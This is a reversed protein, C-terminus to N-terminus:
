RGSSTPPETGLPASGGEARRCPPKLAARAKTMTAREEAPVAVGFVADALDSTLETCPREEDWPLLVVVHRVGLAALQPLVGAGREVHGRGMIGVVLADGHTRHASALAEAMARDWTLQAEIFRAFKPDGEVTIADRCAHEAYVQALASRYAADAPVPDGLGERAAAPVAQWGDRGVRSVLAHSVNLAVLPQRNLRAWHAIALYEDANDGWYTRWASRELFTATDIRGASWDDLAPQASRPMAELWVVLHGRRALLGALVSLQWRHHETADHEEGLLVLDARAARAIVGTHSLVRGDAPDVWQGVPVCPAGSSPPRVPASAACGVALTLALLWWM